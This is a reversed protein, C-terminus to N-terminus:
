FQTVAQMWLRTRDSRGDADAGTTANAGPNGGLKTAVFARVQFVGARTVNLGLGWGSLAYRNLAGAVYPTHAVTIAGYDAFVFAQWLSGLGDYPLDGRLELQAVYGEDGGAEGSPYARVGQAGGLGFKESSDLNKGAVQGNIGGYLSIRDSVRQTRSAQLSVKSYSGAAKPGAVDAAQETPDQIGIQGAAAVINLYNFGGGGVNDRAELSGGVNLARDTRERATGALPSNVTRKDDYGANLYVSLERSRVLPHLGFVSATNGEGRPHFGATCCVTFIVRSYAAGIRTGYGGVPIQYSVRGLAMKEDTGMLRVSLQDGLGLPSNLNLTTGLRYAGTYRSGYNDVDVTASFMRGESAELTVNTEGTNAGPELSVSAAMAPLDNALLAARELAKEQVVTGVGVNADMIRQLVEPRTRAQGAQKVGTGGVTGELVAIEIIGNEIEQQPLYARAVFYGNARYYNSIADTARQLDGFSNEKGLNDLLLLQLDTEKISKNGSIRFGNVVLKFGGKDELAPRVMQAKPLVPEAKPLVPAPKASERMVDGANPVQQGLVVGCSLAACAGVLGAGLGARARVMGMDRKSTAM